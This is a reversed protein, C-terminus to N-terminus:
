VTITPDVYDRNRTRNNDFYPLSSTAHISMNSSQIDQSIGLLDAPKVLKFKRGKTDTTPPSSSGSVFNVTVAPELFESKSNKFNRTSRQLKASFSSFASDHGSHV